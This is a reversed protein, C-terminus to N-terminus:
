SVSQEVVKEVAALLEEHRVTKARSRLKEYAVAAEGGTFDRQSIPIDEVLVLTRASEAAKLNLLNAHGFPMDCVVTCDARAILELNDRHREPDIAAFSPIVAVARCLALATSLDADGENLVGATVEFGESCLMQMVRSGRGGGGIVHVRCSSPRTKRTFPSIVLRDGAVEKYVLVHIGFASLLNDATLVADPKGEAYVRGENLLLLRDCFRAALSFDHMAVLVSRGGIALARLLEMTEMQRQIDLHATPEDLLIIEPEQALIRALLLRQREGGSMESVRRDAMSLLGTTELAGLAINVDKRSEFQLLGLHPYRGMLVVELVTFAEPLFANQPAVALVRARDRQTCSAPLGGNLTVQGSWLPLLGGIAKILTSKGSGNPGILGVMEGENVALSVDRLVARGGYGVTVNDVILGSM